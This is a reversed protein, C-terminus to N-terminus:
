WNSISKLMYVQHEDLTFGFHLGLKAKFSDLREVPSQLKEHLFSGMNFIYQARKKYGYFSSSYNYCERIHTM